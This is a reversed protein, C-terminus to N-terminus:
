IEKGLALNKSEYKGYNGVLTLKAIEKQLAFSVWKCELDIFYILYWQLVQSEM